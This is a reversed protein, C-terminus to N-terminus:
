AANKSTRRHANTASGRAGRLGLAQGVFVIASEPLRVISPLATWAAGPVSAAVGLYSAYNHLPTGDDSFLGSLQTFAQLYSGDALAAVGLARRARATGARM